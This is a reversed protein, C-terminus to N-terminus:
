ICTLKDQFYRLNYLQSRVKKYISIYAMKNCVYKAFPIKIVHLMKMIAGDDCFLIIMQKSVWSDKVIFLKINM